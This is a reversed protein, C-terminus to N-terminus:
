NKWKKTELEKLVERKCNEWIEYCHKNFRGRNFDLNEENSWGGNEIKNDEIEKEIEKIKETPNTM